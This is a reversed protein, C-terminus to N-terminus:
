RPTNRYRLYVVSLAAAVAYSWTLAQQDTAAVQWLAAAAVLYGAGLWLQSVYSKVLLYRVSGQRRALDFFRKNFALRFFSSCFTIVILLILLWQSPLDETVLVRLLWSMAYLGVSVTYINQGAFRDISNKLLYFILAFALALVVVVFGLRSYDEKVMLFLSLTWFHSELFLFLGDIIFVPKSGASDTYRLSEGLDVKEEQCLPERDLQHWFWLSGCLGIVASLMLLWPLGEADLLMGGILIGVKLFVTVFIQFNGYQRGADNDGLLRIFLTRQTTWFFANYAGNAVGLVVPLWRADGSVILLLVLSCELVFTLSILGALPLSAALRQWVSLCATFTLGSVGILLCLDFLRYGNGWLYVPIFFPLLGILLSHVGLFQYFTLPHHNTNL